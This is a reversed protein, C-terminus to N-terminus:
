SQEGGAEVLAKRLRIDTIKIQERGAEEVEVKTENGVRERLRDRMEEANKGTACILFVFGHKEFYEENLRALEEKTGESAEAVGSQEGKSWTGFKGEGGDSKLGGIRPHAAFAELWDSPALSNWVAHSAQLM